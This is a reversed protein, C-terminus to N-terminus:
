FSQEKDFCRRTIKSYTRGLESNANMGPIFGAYKPISYNKKDVPEQLFSYFFIVYRKRCTKPQLGICIDKLGLLEEERSNILQIETSKLNVTIGNIKRFM